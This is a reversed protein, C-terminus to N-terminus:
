SAPERLSDAVHAPVVDLRAFRRSFRGTGATLSRLTIPTACCSPTPCRPTCWPADMGEAGTDPSPAPSGAAGAPCTPCAGRRRLRRARHHRGDDIPELLAPGATRRRRGQGRARRRDPLRRRLLRRQAGQRRGPDGARGGGPTTRTWAGSSSPGCARRSRVSSSHRSRAASSRTPSSSGAGRAAAARGRHRLGRVPRPRRVAQGAPRARQAPATFTERLAIRPGARHRRAGPPRAAPRARRRRAGRGPVLAGAPRHGPQARRRLTPDGAALRAPAKALADEDARTAAEVAVPLLPEPM